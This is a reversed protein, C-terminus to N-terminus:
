NTIGLLTESSKKTFIFAPMETVTFSNLERQSVPTIDATQTSFNYIEKTASQSLQIRLDRHSLKSGDESGKWVSYM